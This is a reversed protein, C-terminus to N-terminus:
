ENDLFGTISDLVPEYNFYIWSADGDVAVFRADPILAATARSAAVRGSLKRHLVLTPAQVRTALSRGDLTLTAQLYKAAIEKSINDRFYDAAFRQWEIPGSPFSSDAMTQRAIRWNRKTMEILGLFTDERGADEGFVVPQWLVIRGVQEPHRAAYALSTAAGTDQGLLDCETIGLSEIVAELDALQAELSLDDVERQSAGVGRPYPIVLLRHAAM